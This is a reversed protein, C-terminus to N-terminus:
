ASKQGIGAELDRLILGLEGKAVEPDEGKLMQLAAEDFLGVLEPPLSQRFNRFDGKGQKIFEGLLEMLKRRGVLEVWSLDFNEPM